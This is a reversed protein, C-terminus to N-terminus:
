NEGGLITLLFRRLAFFLVANASLVASFITLFFIVLDLFTRDESTLDVYGEVKDTRESADTTDKKM